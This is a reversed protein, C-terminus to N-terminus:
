GIEPEGVALACCSARVSVIRCRTLGKGGEEFHEIVVGAFRPRRQAQDQSLLRDARLQDVVEVDRDM